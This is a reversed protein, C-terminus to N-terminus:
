TLPRLWVPDRDFNIVWLKNWTHDQIILNDNKDFSLEGPTGVPFEIVADPTQKALPTRYLYLQTIHRTRPDLYYGDNGVVMENRSNFAVSVPSHPRDVSEFIRCINTEDFRDVVFVKKAKINPFMRRIAALDQALFVIIRGNPHCEYTNDVVFLNGLKDFKIDNVDGFSAADPKPMGRNLAGDTKNKQGIVVDVLLKGNLDDPNRVRLLRHNITDYVWLKRSLRDFALPQECRYPIETEPDDAWYLPILERLTQAGSTLPLQYVMLKGHASCTWLRDHDDITHMGRGYILNDQTIDYGNAQGVVVDAEAGDPTTPSRYKNWALYRKTDRVILQNRFTIAGVGPGSINAPGINNPLTGPFLGGNTEPLIPGQPTPRPRYPLAFRAIRHWREDALYINNHSDFGIMGGPSVLNFPTEPSMNGRAFVVDSGGYTTLDPAGIALLINGEADLLMTRTSDHLWFIGDRYRHTQTEEDIWDDTKVPNFVLGTAHTLRYGGAYDGKLLQRPFIVRAADMGNSFPPEFVLIRAPFGGPYEDVVYLEGTDPNVRALTPTCMRDTRATEPPSENTPESVKFNPQGLVLDAGTAGKPFRLVRYNFTDAVWVNGSGDVSVGRAAVHDFGGFSLFLSRADRENPGKGHNIGNSNFDPQGLVFDPLTIMKLVQRIPRKFPALYILVRNNYFDPVYLNGEADVDINLRMWQEGTNPNPPVNMLCMSARSPQAYVGTNCDGNPAGSSELPQGCILDAKPSKYSRFGLIRNNGTDAVYIHNPTSSRDVVVGAAHFIKAGTVRGPSCEGWRQQGFLKLVKVKKGYFNPM